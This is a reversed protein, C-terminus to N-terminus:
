FEKKGLEIAAHFERGGSLTDIDVKNDKLLLRYL